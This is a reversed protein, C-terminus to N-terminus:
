EVLYSKYLIAGRNRGDYNIGIVGTGHLDLAGTILQNGAQFGTGGIETPNDPFYLTGSLNFDSTGLIVAENHNDIDQWMSIGPQGDVQPEGTVPPDLFYDGPPCVEVYGSGGLKLEGYEVDYENHAGTVYLTVYEGYLSASGGIVLGSKGDPGGGLAYLSTEVSPGHNLRLEVEYTEYIPIPPLTPDPNPEYGVLLKVTDSNMSIGGPYYGPYLQLVKLNPNTPSIEGLLAITDETVPDIYEYEIAQTLLGTDPDYYEYEGYYTAVGAPIAPPNLYLLPDEVRGAGTNVSFPELPEAYFSEWAAAVSADPSTAGVVNFESANITLSGNMRMAQWHGQGSDAVANVQIDGGQVDILGTGHIWLGTPHNWGPYMDPYDALTIIGAGSSWSSMAIAYRYVDVNNVHAIPGFNLSVPDNLSHIDTFRAVVKVANVNVTTPIFTQEQRIYRGIVFDGEPINSGNGALEIAESDALNQYAIDYAQDWAMSQDIKVFCAGALAAADAGNQLQHIVLCVKATDLSLGVLLVILMIVIAVWILAVGRHRHDKFQLLRAPPKRRMDQSIALYLNKETWSSSIRKSKAM